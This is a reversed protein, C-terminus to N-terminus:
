LKAGATGLITLVYTEPKTIHSCTPCNDAPIAEVTVSEIEALEYHHSGYEGPVRIKLLVKEKRLGSEILETGLDDVTM